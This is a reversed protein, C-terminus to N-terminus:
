VKVFAISIYIHEPCIYENYAATKRNPSIGYQKEPNSWNSFSGCIHRAKYILM